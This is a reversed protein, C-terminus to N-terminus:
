TSQRDDDAGEQQSKEKNGVTQVHKDDYFINPYRSSQKRLNELRSWSFCIFYNEYIEIM